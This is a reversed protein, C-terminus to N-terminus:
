NDNRVDKTSKLLKKGEGEDLEPRGLIERQEDILLVKTPDIKFGVPPTNKIRLEVDFGAIKLITNFLDLLPTQFEPIVVSNMVINWQNIIEQNDGLKGATQIGALSPFWRHGSIINQTALADLDKFEGDKAGSLESVKTEQDADDLLTALIKSNKGEGTFKNVVERIYDQATQGEPPDGFMSLVVSPFFGNDLRDLNYTPIRYEIDAWKLVSVYEPVGYFDFEPTDQKRHIIFNGQKTDINNDWRKVPKIPFKKKNASPNNKIDRWFSSIFVTKEEEDTRCKTADKRFVNVGVSKNKTRKSIETWSNGTTIYDQAAQAYVRILPTGKNDADSLFVQLNKDLKDFEVQEGDKWYTFGQGNTYTIKSKIVAGHTPSRRARLALDNPYINGSDLFFPVWKTAKPFLRATDRQPQPDTIAVAKIKKQVKINKKSGM